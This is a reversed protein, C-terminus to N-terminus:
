SGFQVGVKCFRYKIKEAYKNIGEGGQSSFLRMYGRESTIGDSMTHHVPLSHLVCTANPCRNELSFHRFVELNQGIKLPLCQKRIM